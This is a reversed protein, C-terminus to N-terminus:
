RTLSKEIGCKKMKRYLTRLGIGLAQAAGEKGKLDWGYQDLAERIAQAEAQDVQEPLTQFGSQRQFREPLSHMHITCGDELNVAYELLNEMERINGPWTHSMFADLVDQSLMKKPCKQRDCQSRLIEEALLPVDAIREALSPVELPIVNLRYYLDERFTKASVMEELEKNTAAIIRVDVSISRTGGVREITHDQLVKLLKAQITMPMEGIEDLFLTGHQALEFMGPKGGKKAGTFAGEEYGFLESEFLSEPISACNIAIFPRASRPSEYHIAKAVLSKGTGTEGTILVTSASKAIKHIKGKLTVISSHEGKLQQLSFRDKYDIERQKNLKLTLAHNKSLRIWSGIYQDEMQIPRAQVNAYFDGIQCLESSVSNGTLIKEVVSEPLLQNLNQTFLSCFSFLEVAPPNAYNIYGAHDVVILGDEVADMTTSLVSELRSFHDGKQSYDVVSAILQSMENVISTYIHIDNTIRDHGEKTFSTMTMVGVPRTGIRICSLIEITSPCNEKFRCGECSKMFGPKNVLISNNLLVEEISPAHVASGKRKVYAETSTVLASHVDFVACEVEFARSIGEVLNQIMPKYDSLHIM